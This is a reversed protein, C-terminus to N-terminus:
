RRLQFRVRRARFDLSVRRFAQLLDTGLLMSPQRDLGFLAFPPVDAFAVAVDALTLSGVRVQRLRHVEAEIVQGTVSILQVMEVPAPAREGFIRRKLAMNGMTMESGTDIIAYVPRDMASAKTIILQGNRKRAVVVIEDPNTSVPRRNDQITIRRADFDLMLRQEALADIGIIGEAGLHREALAPTTLGEIVSQGIGLQEIRVTGVSAESAISVIRVTPGRELALRTALASGVVTRDSGSDVLFRHPGSGNVQVDVTLRTDVQRAALNEGTVDLLDDLQAEPIKPPALIPFDPTIPAAFGAAPTLWLALAAAAAKIPQRVM